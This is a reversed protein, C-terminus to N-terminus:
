GSFLHTIEWLGDTSCSSLTVCDTVTIYVQTCKIDELTPSDTDQGFVVGYLSRLDSRVLGTSLNNFLTLRPVPLLVNWQLVTLDMILLPLLIACIFGACQEANGGTPLDNGVAYCGPDQFWVAVKRGEPKHPTETLTFDHRLPFRQWVSSNLHLSSFELCCCWQTRWEYALCVSIFLTFVSSRLGAHVLFLLFHM